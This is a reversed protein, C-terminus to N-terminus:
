CGIGPIQLLREVAPVVEHAGMGSSCGRRLLGRLAKLRATRAGMWGARMRHLSTLLQQEPAKVAQRLEWNRYAEVLAMADARDSQNRRVFPRVQDPPLLVVVHGLERLKRAWFHCTGCAEMIVLAAARTRLVASERSLRPSNEFLGARRSIALQFGVKALDFGILTDHAHAGGRQQSLCRSQCM